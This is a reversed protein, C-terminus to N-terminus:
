MSANCRLLRSTNAAGATGPFPASCITRFFLSDPTPRTARVISSGESPAIEDLFIPLAEMAGQDRMCYAGLMVHLKHMSGHTHQLAFDRALKFPASVCNCLLLTVLVQHTDKVVPLVRRAHDRDRQSVSGGETTAIKELEAADLAMLGINLGSFLGATLVLTTVLAVDIWFALPSLPADADMELVQGLAQETKTEWSPEPEPEAALGVGNSQLSRGHVVAAPRRYFVEGDCVVADSHLQECHLVAPGPASPATAGAPACAGTGYQVAALLLGQARM